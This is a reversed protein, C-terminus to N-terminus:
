FTNKGLGIPKEKEPSEESHTMYFSVKKNSVDLNVFCVMYEETRNLQIDYSLHDLFPIGLL